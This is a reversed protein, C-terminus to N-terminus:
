PPKDLDWAQLIKGYEGSRILADLAGQVAGILEKNEPKM